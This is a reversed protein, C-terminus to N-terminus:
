WDINIVYKGAEILGKSYLDNVIMDVRPYFNREWFLDNEWKYDRNFEKVTDEPSTKLWTEFSVGMKSGNVKFPIEIAEYDEPNEVPVHITEVGREKCGDQQQFCYTKNYTKQVLDDWDFCDIVKKTEFKLM